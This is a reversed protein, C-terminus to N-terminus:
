GRVALEMVVGTQKRCDMGSVFTGSGGFWGPSKSVSTRVATGPLPCWAGIENERYLEDLLYVGMVSGATSDFGDPVDAGHVTGWLRGRLGTPHDSLDDPADRWYASVGGASLKRSIRDWRVPRRFVEPETDDATYALVWTAERGVEPQPACCEIEWAAIYVDIVDVGRDVPTANTFGHM